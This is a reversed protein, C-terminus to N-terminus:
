ARVPTGHQPSTDAPIYLMIWFWALYYEKSARVVEWSACKREPDIIM